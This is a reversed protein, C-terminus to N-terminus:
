SKLNIAQEVAADLDKKIQADFGIIKKVLKGSRDFIATQPIDTKNGFIFRTLEDEPTALPYDIKLRKAFAPVRPRDEEGGVHLGVIELNEKGYKKQLEKLHPIEEICPPCYTAWFDLIVVKGQFDKLKNINGELNTEGDIVAWTMEEVPKTPALPQNTLPVDNVSVPKNSIAVPAAAPRCATSLLFAFTFLCFVLVRM